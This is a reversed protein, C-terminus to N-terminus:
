LLDEPPNESDIWIFTLHTREDGSYKSLRIGNIGIENLRKATLPEYKDLMFVKELMWEGLISQKGKSEIAKGADQGIFMEMEDGSPDFVMTFCREKQPKVLKWKKDQQVLQGIGAGFFDPHEQHFRRSNPIPIYMETVPRFVTQCIEQVLEDNGTQKTYKIIKNRLNEKKIKGDRDKPAFVLYERLKQLIETLMNNDVYDLYKVRMKAIKDDIQKKTRKNKAGVGYFGNFGSYREVEGKSNTILWSYSEIPEKRTKIPMTQTHNTGKEECYVTDAIKSFIEYADTAYRVEWKEQVINLNDFDMLLQSDASTYRYKHNGDTFDFNTPYKSATCGLIKLNDINIKNYSTEGVYICPDEGKKSPMLVHYVAETNDSVVRVDFGRLNAESSMIRKNRIDSINRALELYLDYNVHNIEAKSLPQGDAGVSNKWITDIISAWDNHNAKFQAVKQQKSFFGFTKIGVLYRHINNQEDMCEISADYSTNGIDEAFANFARQFVTEQYKSNIIPSLMAKQPEDDSAESKQAFMETLSAFALIMKKYEIRENKPLNHWM